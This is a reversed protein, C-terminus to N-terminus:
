RMKFGQEKMGKKFAKIHNGTKVLEKRTEKIFPRPDEYEYGYGTYDYGEGTEIVLPIYKGTKDDERTNRVIVGSDINETGWENILGETESHEGKRTYVKPNPYYDYVVEQVKKKGIKIVEDPVKDRIAKEFNGQLQKALNALQIELSEAM